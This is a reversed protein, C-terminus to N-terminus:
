ACRRSRIRELAADISWRGAGLLVLCIAGIALMMELRIAAFGSAVSPEDLAAPLRVVLIAVAMEAALLVGIPRTVVGILLGIGGVLELYAVFPALGEPWPIGIDRFYAVVAGIGGLVKELGAFLFTLGLGIRLLLAVISQAM